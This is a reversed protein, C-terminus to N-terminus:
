ELLEKIRDPEYGVICESDNIIITPYAIRDTHEEMIKTALDAENWDLLDIDVYSYKVGLKALYNKTKACWGCTSLAFLVIEGKEEGDVQKEFGLKM